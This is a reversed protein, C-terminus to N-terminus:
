RLLRNRSPCVLVSDLTGKAIQEVRILRRRTNLLVQFHEVEYLRTQERLLDAVKDPSDLLPSERYSERSLRQALLFASKIAKAKSHGIGHIQTLEDFSAQALQTLGGFKQLL